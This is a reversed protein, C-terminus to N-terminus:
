TSYCTQRGQFVIIQSFVSIILWVRVNVPKTVVVCRSFIFWHLQKARYKPQKAPFYACSQWVLNLTYEYIHKPKTSQAAVPRYRALPKFFVLWKSLAWNLMYIIYLLPTEVTKFNHAITPFLAFRYLLQSPFIKYLLIYRKRTHQHGAAQNIRQMRSTM